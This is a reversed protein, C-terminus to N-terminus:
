HLLFQKGKRLVQTWERKKTPNTNSSRQNYINHKTSRQKDKQKNEKPWQTTHEEEIYPNQNDRQYRWVRGINLSYHSLLHMDNCRKLQLLFQWNIYTIPIDRYYQFVWKKKCEDIVLILLFCHVVITTLLVLWLAIGPIGKLM